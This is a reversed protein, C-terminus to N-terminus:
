ALSLIELLGKLSPRPITTLQKLPHTGSACVCVKQVHPKGTPRGEAWLMGASTSLEGAECEGGPKEEGDRTTFLVSRVALSAMGEQLRRVSSPVSSTMRTAQAPLPAGLSAAM